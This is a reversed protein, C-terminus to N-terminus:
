VLASPAASVLGAAGAHHAASDVRTRCRRGRRDRRRLGPSRHEPVFFPMEYRRPNGIPVPLIGSDIAVGASLARFGRDDALRKAVAPHGCITAKRARYHQWVPEADRAHYPITILIRVHGTVIGDLQDLLAKVDGGPAIPDIVLTNDGDRLAYSSVESGFATRPHWEPHRATWRWIGDAIVDM